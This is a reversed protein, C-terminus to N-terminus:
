WRITYSVAGFEKYSEFRNNQAVFLWDLYLNIVKIM